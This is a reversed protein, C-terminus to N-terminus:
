GRRARRNMNPYSVTARPQTVQQQGRFVPRRAMVAPTGRPDTAPVPLQNDSVWSVPLLIQPGAVWYMFPNFVNPSDSSRSDHAGIALATRDQPVGGPPPAPISKALGIRGRAQWANRDPSLPPVAAAGLKTGPGLSTIRLGM